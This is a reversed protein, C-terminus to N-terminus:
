EEELMPLARFSRHQAFVEPASVDRLQRHEVLYDLAAIMLWSDGSVGRWLEQASFVDHTKALRRANGRVRLLTEQGIDTDLQPRLDEYRYPM